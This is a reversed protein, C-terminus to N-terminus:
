ERRAGSELRQLATRAPEFRPDAELAKRFEEAAEDRREGKTLVLGLNYHAEALKPQLRIAQRLAGAAQELDGRQLLVCGLANCAEAANPDVRLSARLHREAADWARDRAALVGINYHATYSDPDTTLVREFASRAATTDKREISIAGQLEEARTYWPAIALAAHAERGAEEFQRLQFLSVALNFHAVANSPDQRLVRRFNGAAEAHQGLRQQNIGLSALIDPVDPLRSSLAALAADSENLKGSSALALAQGYREFDGIRDKPDVRSQSARVPTAGGSLYGLSRLAVLAQADPKAAGGSQAGPFRRRLAVLRKRIAEAEPRRQDFLNHEEQPDRSLDYLEPKPSDIYKYKGVRLSRLSACGFHTAAYHSEAYVDEPPGAGRLSRGHMGPLPPLGIAELITPAVDLLSAPEDVRQKFPRTGGPWHFILPVRLTSQYVFYGHTSEGHDGLGEGHDSTFVILAKGLLQRRELVGLFTGLVGDVYELESAYSRGHSRPTHLDYLHLFLFFPGGGNRELWRAAAGAVETGARKIDGPDMGASRHLDFPSDYVDFGQNLGFRRDMVFGGVFAATRYGHSKLVSSLSVIKPSLREGNDRIGNALPYTSTLLSAHSPLTLPVAASVQSFLTGDKALSNINPTRARRGGYCGLADARLTDVSILIVPTAGPAGFAAAAFAAALIVTVRSRKRGTM